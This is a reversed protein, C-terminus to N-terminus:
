IMMKINLINSFFQWDISVRILAPNKNICKHAMKDYGLLSLCINIAVTQLLLSDKVYISSPIGSMFKARFVIFKFIYKNNHNNYDYIIFYIMRNEEERILKM